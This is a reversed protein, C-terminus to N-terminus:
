RWCPPVSWVASARLWPACDLTEPVDRFTPRRHALGQSDDHWRGGQAIAKEWDFRPIDPYLASTHSAVFLNSGHPYSRNFFRAAAAPRGTRFPGGGRNASISVGESSRM